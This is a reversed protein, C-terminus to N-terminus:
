SQLGLSKLHQRGADTIQIGDGTYIAWGKAFISNKSERHSVINGVIQQYMVENRRTKSPVLDEATLSLYQNVENKIETTTARGRPKSAAVQLAAIRMANESTRNGIVGKSVPDSESTLTMTSAPTSPSVIIVRLGFSHAASVFADFSVAPILKAAPGISLHLTNGNQRITVQEGLARRVKDSYGPSGSKSRLCKLAIGRLYTDRRWESAKQRGYRRSLWSFAKRALRHAAIGEVAEAVILLSLPAHEVVSERVEALASWIEQATGVYPVDEWLFIDLWPEGVGAERIQEVPLCVLSEPDYHDFGAIQGNAEGPSTSRATYLVNAATSRGFVPLALGHDTLKEYGLLHLRGRTDRDENM